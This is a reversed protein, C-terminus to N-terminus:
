YRQTRRELSRNPNFEDGNITLKIGAKEYEWDFLLKDEFDDSAVNSDWIVTPSMKLIEEKYEGSAITISDQSCAYTQGNGDTASFVTYKNDVAPLAVYLESTPADPTIVYEQTSAIHNQVTTVSIAFRNVDRNASGDANKTNIKYTAYQKDLKVEGVLSATEGVKLKGPSKRVDSKSNVDDQKGSQAYILDNNVNGSTGDAAQAPYIVKVDDGDSVKGKLYGDIIVLDELVSIVTMEDKVGNHIVAVKEKATIANGSIFLTAHFPIGEANGFQNSPKNDDNDNGSCAALFPTALLMIALSSLNRFSKFQKM